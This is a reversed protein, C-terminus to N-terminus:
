KSPMEGLIEEIGAVETTSDILIRASPGQPQTYLLLFFLTSAIDLDEGAFLARDRQTQINGLTYRKMENLKIERLDLVFEM